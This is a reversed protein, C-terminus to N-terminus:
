QTPDQIGECVALLTFHKMFAAPGADFREKPPLLPDHVGREGRVAGSWM